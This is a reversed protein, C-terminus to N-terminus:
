QDDGIIYESDDGFIYFDDDGALAQEETLLAAVRIFDYVNTRNRLILADSRNDIHYLDSRNCLEFSDGKDVISNLSEM